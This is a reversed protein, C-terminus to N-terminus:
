VWLRRGDCLIHKNLGQGSPQQQPYLGKRLQTSLMVQRLQRLQRLWGRPSEKCLSRRSDQLKKFARDAFGTFRHRRSSGFLCRQSCEAGCRRAHNGLLHTEGGPPKLKSINQKFIFCKRKFYGRKGRAYHRSSKGVYQEGICNDTMLALCINIELLTMKDVGKTRKICLAPYKLWSSLRDAKGSRIANKPLPARAKRKITPAM